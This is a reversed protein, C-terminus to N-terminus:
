GGCEGAEQWLIVDDIVCAQTVTVTIATVVLAAGTASVPAGLRQFRGEDSTLPTLELALVGDSTQLAVTAAACDSVLEVAVLGDVAVSPVSTSASDTIALGHEGPHVTSVREGASWGCTGACSEFSARFAVSREPCTCAAALAALLVLRRM